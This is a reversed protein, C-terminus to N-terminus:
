RGSRPLEDLHKLVLVGANRSFSVIWVDTRHKEQLFLAGALPVITAGFSNALSPPHNSHGFFVFRLLGILARHASFFKIRLFLELLM